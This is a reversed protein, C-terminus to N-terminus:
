SDKISSHRVRSALLFIILAALALGFWQVAYAYHKHPPMVVVPWERVWQTAESSEEQPLLRVMFDSVNVSDHREKIHRELVTLEPYQIRVYQQEANAPASQESLLFPAEPIYVRGVFQATDSLQFQPMESRTELAAIWGFNVPITLSSDTLKVPAIVHYGVQSNHIQNEVLFIPAQQISGSFAVWQDQRASFTHANDASLTVEGQANAASNRDIIAQKEEGRSIQWFGLKIMLVIALLTLVLAFPNLKFHSSGIRLVAM